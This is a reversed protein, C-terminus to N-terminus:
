KALCHLVTSGASAQNAARNSGFNSKNSERSIRSGFQIARKPLSVVGKLGLYFAVERLIKKDGQGAQEKLDAIEWLPTELLTLIVDEDLYPFRAEKGHDAICRDDRGLNRTWLRQMDLRMENQLAEWGGLKFKTRHRSYGACQEDAGTGVLLIRAESRYPRHCTGEELWGDGSAALWLATGINLDMYTNSPCVLSLLHPRMKSISSLTGDMKILRWLLSYRRLPSIKSLEEVGVLASMRDPSTSGEFSVNLLDIAYDPHLCQDALAALIMSDLGGSFLIAVPSIADLEGDKRSRLRNTKGMIEWNCLINCLRREVSKKLAALVHLVSKTPLKSGVFQMCTQSDNPRGLVQHGHAHATSSDVTWNGVANMNSSNGEQSEKYSDHKEPSILQRKWILIKNLDSDKWDHKELWGLSAYFHHGVYAGEIKNPMKMEDLITISYIACPLEEWYGFMDSYYAMNEKKFEWADCIMDEPMSDDLRGLSPAVSSLLLRTDEQSPWHVLLSRRGLIDRGFWLTKSKEQWYILAWPGRIRSLLEAVTVHNNVFGGESGCFCNRVTEHHTHCPCSCCNQLALMVKEADNEELGVSLGGFVEGNYVLLNNHIDQLPQFVPCIGRLQLSAGVFQLVAFSGEDDCRSIHCDRNSLIVSDLKDSESTQVYVAASSTFDPGRNGLAKILDNITPGSDNCPLKYSPDAVISYKLLPGILKLGSVILGIGCM